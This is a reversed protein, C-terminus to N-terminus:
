LEGLDGVSDGNTESDHAEETVEHLQDMNWHSDPRLRQIGIGTSISNYEKQLLLM